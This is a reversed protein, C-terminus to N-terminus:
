ELEGLKTLVFDILELRLDLQKGVWLTGLSQHHEYEIEGGIPYLEDGSHKPWTLAIAKFLKSETYPLASCIGAAEIRKSKLQTLLRALSEKVLEALVFNILSLRLTLQEGAWLTDNHRHCEYYVPGSVPYEKVGSHNPWDVALDIFKNAYPEVYKCIGSSPTEGRQVKNKLQTLLEKLSM